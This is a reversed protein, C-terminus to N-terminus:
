KFDHKLNKWLYYFHPFCYVLKWIYNIEILSITKPTFLPSKCNLNFCPLFITLIFKYENKKCYYYYYYWICAVLYNKGLIKRACQRFRVKIKVPQRTHSIIRTKSLHFHCFAQSTVKLATRTINIYQKYPQLLEDVDDIVDVLFVDILMSHTSADCRAVGM